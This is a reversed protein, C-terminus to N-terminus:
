LILMKIIKFHAAVNVISISTSDTRRIIEM